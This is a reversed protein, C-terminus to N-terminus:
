GLHMPMIVHIFNEDGVPHIVGPTNNANTEMAVNPTHVVDLVERLFRVNYAILLGSGEITAEVKIDSKGTEETQASIEVRGPGSEEPLIDLRIVNNGERAIIEAQKCAKLFAPTSVVTSTKFSKPVIARFDPFNGDILQSVLETDKLHFIVQGRGQPVVMTVSKDSDGAVRALESMARAPIIISFNQKIPNALAQKRVSIRFGDTAALTILDETVEM